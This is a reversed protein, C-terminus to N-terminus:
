NCVTVDRCQRVNGRGRIFVTTCRRVIQCRPNDSSLDGDDEGEEATGNKNCDKSKSPRKSNNKSISNATTIHVSLFVFILLFLVSKFNM